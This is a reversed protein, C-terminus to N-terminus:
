PREAYLRSDKPGADPRPPTALKPMENIADLWGEKHAGRYIMAEAHSATDFASKGVHERMYSSLAIFRPDAFLEAFKAINHLDHLNM